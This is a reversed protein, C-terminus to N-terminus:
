RVMVYSAGSSPASPSVVATQAADNGGATSTHMSKAWMGNGGFHHPTFVVAPADRRELQTVTLTTKM